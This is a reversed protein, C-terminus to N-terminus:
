ANFWTDGLLRGQEPAIISHFLKRAGSMVIDRPLSGKLLTAHLIMVGSRIGKERKTEAEM